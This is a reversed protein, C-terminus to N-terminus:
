KVRADNLTIIKKWFFVLYVSHKLINKKLMFFEFHLNFLRHLWTVLYFRYSNIYIFFTALLLWSVFQLFSINVQNHKCKNLYIFCLDVRFFDNCLCYICIFSVSYVWVMVFIVYPWLCWCFTLISCRAIHHFSIFFDQTYEVALRPWCILYM